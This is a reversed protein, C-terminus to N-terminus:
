ALIFTDQELVVVCHRRHPKFGRGRPRSDLARGSLWQAGFRKKRKKKSMHASCYRYNMFNSLKIGNPIGCDPVTIICNLASNSLQINRIVLVSVAIGFGDLFSLFASNKRSFDCTLICMNHFYIVSLLKFSGHTPIKTLCM